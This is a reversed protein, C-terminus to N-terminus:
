GTKLWYPIHQPIPFHRYLVNSPASFGEPRTNLARCCPQPKLKSGVEGRADPLGELDSLAHMGSSSLRSCLSGHQRWRSAETQQWLGAEFMGSFYIRRHCLINSSFYGFVERVGGGSSVFGLIRWKGKRILSCPLGSSHDGTKLGQM